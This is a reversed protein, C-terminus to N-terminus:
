SLVRKIGCPPWMSIDLHHAIDRNLFIPITFRVAVVLDIDLKDSVTQNTFWFQVVTCYKLLM